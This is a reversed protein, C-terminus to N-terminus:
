YYTWENLVINRERIPRHLCYCLIYLSVVSDSNIRRPRELAGSNSTTKNQTKKKIYIIHMVPFRIIIMIVLISGASFVGIYKKRLLREKKSTIHVVAVIGFMNAWKKELGLTIDNWPHRTCINTNVAAISVSNRKNVM